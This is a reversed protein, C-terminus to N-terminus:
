QPSRQETVAPKVVNKDIVVPSLRIICDTSEPPFHCDSSGFILNPRLVIKLKKFKILYYVKNGIPKIFYIKTNFDCNSCCDM